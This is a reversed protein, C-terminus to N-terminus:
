SCPRMAVRTTRAGCTSPWSLAPGRRRRRRARSALVRDAVADRELGPQRAPAAALAARAAVVEAAVHAEEARRRGVAGEGAEDGHVLVERVRQGVAHAVLGARQHLRQRDRQPRALLGPDAGAVAHEDGAGARDPQQDRLDRAHPARRLDRHGVDVRVPQLERPAHAGDASSASASASISHEPWGCASRSPMAASRGAPVATSTPMPPSSSTSRGASGSGPARSRASAAREAVRVGVRGRDRQGGGAGDVELRDDGTVEREVLDVDRQARAALVRAAHLRDDRGTPRADLRGSRGAAAALRGRARGHPGRGRLRLADGRAGLRRRALDGAGLGARRWWALFGGGFADGAGITDVVEVQEAPVDTAGDATVVTVGEGGRTLLVVSPGTTSCRRAGVRDRRPRPRALRPRRREGEGRRHAAAAPRDPRPLGDPDPVALPRINLDVM